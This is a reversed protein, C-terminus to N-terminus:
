THSVVVNYSGEKIRADMQVNFVLCFELDEGCALDLGKVLRRGGRRWSVQNFLGLLQFKLKM